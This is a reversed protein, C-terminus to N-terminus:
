ACPIETSDPTMLTSVEKGRRRGGDASAASCPIGALATQLKLPCQIQIMKKCIDNEECENHWELALRQKTINYLAVGPVALILRKAWLWHSGEVEVFTVDLELSREATWDTFWPSARVGPYGKYHSRNAYRSFAAM